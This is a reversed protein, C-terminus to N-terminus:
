NNYKEFMKLTITRDAISRSFADFRGQHFVQRRKTSNTMAAMMRMMM